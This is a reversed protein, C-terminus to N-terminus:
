PRVRYGHVADFTVGVLVLCGSAKDYDVRVRDGTHLYRDSWATAHRNVARRQATTRLLQHATM